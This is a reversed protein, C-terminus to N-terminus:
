VTGGKPIPHPEVPRCPGRGEGGGGGNYERGGERASWGEYGYLGVWPPIRRPELAEGKKLQHHRERPPCLLCLSPM